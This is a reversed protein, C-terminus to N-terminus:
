GASGQPKRSMMVKMFEAAYVRGVPLVVPGALTVCRGTFRSVGSVPIIYSRHIRVFREKPLMDELDKLSTQTLVTDGGSVHIKAYNDMAEIYSIDSFRVNINRYESKVTIEGGSGGAAASRLRMQERVKGLATEFRAWSFPKHLFDVANLEFGDLAFRAYATTFILFTGEPLTRAVDLGSIGNMEIDLFVLQPRVRRVAELGEVPDSYSDLAVDGDRLCFQRIISLAVPEDDIAVAHIM